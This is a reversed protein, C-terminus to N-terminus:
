SCLEIRREDDPDGYVDLAAKPLGGFYEFAELMCGIITATDSFLFDV